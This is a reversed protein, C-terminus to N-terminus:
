WRRLAFSVRTTASWLSNRATQRLTNFDEFLLGTQLALMDRDVASHTRVASLTSANHSRVNLDKNTYDATSDFSALMAAYYAELVSDSGTDVCGDVSPHLM